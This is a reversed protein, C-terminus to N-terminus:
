VREKLGSLRWYASPLGTRLTSPLSFFQYCFRIEPTFHGSHDVKLYFCARRKSQHDTMQVSAVLLFEPLPHILKALFSIVIKEEEDRMKPPILIFAIQGLFPEM